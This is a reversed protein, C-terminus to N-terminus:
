HSTGVDDLPNPPGDSPINWGEDLGARRVRDHRRRRLWVAGVLAATAGWFLTFSTFIRVWGYRARLDRRWLVELQDLTVLHTQRIAREFDGTERVNAILPALGQRGGLRELFLVATTATAYAARASAPGARLERNLSTFTAAVGTMLRWNVELADLRGWEQAARAAYGEAFWRPVRPAVQYLALHALEHRLTGFPDSSIKLVVTNQGPFAAAASWSPLRGATLSDYRAASRTVILRIPYADLPPLGPWDRAAEAFEALATAVNEDGEWYVATVTGVRVTAPQQAVLILPM